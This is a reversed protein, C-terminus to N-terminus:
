ISGDLNGRIACALRPVTSVSREGAKHPRSCARPSVACDAPRGIVRWTVRALDGPHGPSEPLMVVAWATDLPTLRNEKQRGKAGRVEV